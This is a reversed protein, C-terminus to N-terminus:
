LSASAESTSSPACETFAKTSGICEHGFGPLHPLALAFEAILNVIHANDVAMGALLERHWWGTLQVIVVQYMVSAIAYVGLAVDWPSHGEKPMADDMFFPNPVWLLKAKLGGADYGLAVLKKALDMEGSYICLELVRSWSLARWDYIDWPVNHQDTAHKNCHRCMNPDEDWYYAQWKLQSERMDIGLDVLIEICEARLALLAISEFGLAQFDEIIIKQALLYELGICVSVAGLSSLITAIQRQGGMAASSFLWDYCGSPQADSWVPRMCGPNAGWPSSHFESFDYYGMRASSRLAAELRRAGLLDMESPAQETGVYPCSGEVFFHIPIDLIHPVELVFLDEALEVDGDLIALDLVSVRVSHLERIGPFITTFDTKLITAGREGDSLLGTVRRKSFRVSRLVDILSMVFATFYIPKEQDRTDNVHALRDDMIFPPRRNPSPDLWQASTEFQNFRGREDPPLAYVEFTQNLLVELELEDRASAM